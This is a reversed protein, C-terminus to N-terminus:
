HSVGIRRHLRKLLPPAWWNARGLLRMSAPLLLARVLTADVLVALALGAGLMQLWMVESTTYAAFSLALIAGAASILPGSRQLGVSTAAATDGTRDYEEKIRALMFVEYDMSLGYAICFMLIPFSPELAGPPTFGLADALGGDQFGWVLIGFMVGLTLLNLLTAKAPLLLSGTLLYLVAFGTALVLGLLLPLRDALSDRYDVLDAPYGGVEFAYDAPSSRVEQVLGFPDEDLREATPVAEIRVDEGTDYRSHHDAAGDVREGGSFVGTPTEVRAIGDIASLADAHADLEDEGPRGGQPLIHLTDAAEATFGQSIQEQAQRSPADEPLAREDPLGLRLGLAPAALVALLLLVAGGTALPRRMARDATRSWFGGGDAAAGGRSWYRHSARTGMLALFAPLFVVSATIGAAVVAIGAYAFSRLFDFPLALLVAMSAAVTVGSFVVTRGATATTTEVAEPVTRGAALEERFRYILFLCYDVGLALGMVLTINLAFTSLETALAVPLLLALTGAMTFVGAALPAAALAANRLVPLLLLFVAPFIVAEARVFDSAAQTSADLFVAEGGGVQSTVVGTDRTFEELFGPLVERRVRDADGPASALILAQAGDQSRLTPARDRTWYSSADLIGDHAAAQATLREGAAAAEPADVDGGSATVVVAINTRGTGFDETLAAAVRDSESGPAEFRSLVLMSATPAAAAALAAFLLLGCLLVTRPRRACLRGLRALPGAAPAPPPAPSPRLRQSLSM